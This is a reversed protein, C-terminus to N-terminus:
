KSRFTESLILEAIMSQMSYGDRTGRETLQDVLGRDAPLVPRGLAYVIMKQALGRALRDKQDFLLAKFEEFTQFAAGNPLRGSVDIPPTNNGRFDEGDQHERWKGIVNFNELALGYPDLSRHCAACSEIQQHQILRERVTLNKGEINPEIEGANPPPPHPPDNFFVERVYVARNVPLTRNGDSGHMAVGAMGLLGGRKSDAPLKVPRFEEGKVGKIGYFAALRENLMTWDSDILEHFPRDSNLILRFFSLAENVMAEGLEPTFEKYLQEDPEFKRFEGTQLWQAGFGDVLAAAKPDALMRSTQAALVKPDSLRGASALKFLETDPMSSWLFYSLRNALEWDNLPSRGEAQSGTPEHIYLFSPSTLVAALGVQFAETFGTGRSMESKILGFIPEIEATEVPRRFARPMFRTLIALADDATASAPDLEGLLMEHSKPPWQEYIPGEVEIWDIILKPLKERQAWHPHPSVGDHGGELKKRAELRLIEKHNNEKAFKEGESRAYGFVPNSYGRDSGNLFDISWSSSDPDRVATFEYVKPTTDLTLEENFALTGIPHQQKIRIRIPKGPEGPDGSARIRFKYTGAIPIHKRHDPFQLEQRLGLSRGMLVADDERIISDLRNSLDRVFRKDSDARFDLRLTQTEVPPPGEVIAKDALLTAVDYYNDLLSPDLTLMASVKDFGEAIGDPPLINKPDETPLLDLHLLDRVTNVYEDRNMRRMLVGTGKALTELEAARLEGAIWSAVEHIEQADPQEEDEPPMEGLNLNDMVEIWMGAAQSDLFDAPLTDLRLKGREKDPGHCKVCHQELFPRVVTDYRTGEANQATASAVAALGLPLLLSRAVFSHHPLMIVHTASTPKRSNQFEFPRRVTM